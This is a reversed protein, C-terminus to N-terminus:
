ATSRTVHRRHIAYAAVIAVGWVAGAYLAVRPSDEMLDPPAEGFDSTM